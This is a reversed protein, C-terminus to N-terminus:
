FGSGNDPLLAWGVGFDLNSSAGAWFYGEVANRFNPLSKTNLKAVRSGFTPFRETSSGKANWSDWYMSPGSRKIREVNMMRIMRKCRPRPPPNAPANPPAPPELAKPTLAPSIKVLIVAIATQTHIIRQANTHQSYRGAAGSITAAGCLVGAAKDAPGFSPSAEAVIAGALVSSGFCDLEEFPVEFSVPDSELDVSGAAGEASPNGPKAGLSAALLAAVSDGAEDVVVGVSDEGAL